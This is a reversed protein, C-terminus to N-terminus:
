YKMYFPFYKLCSFDLYPTNRKTIPFVKKFKIFDERLEIIFLPHHNCIGNLDIFIRPFVNNLFINQLKLDSKSLCFIFKCDNEVFSLPQSSAYIKTTIKTNKKIM